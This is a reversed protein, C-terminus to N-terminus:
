TYPMHLPNSTCLASASPSSTHLPPKPVKTAEPPATQCTRWLGPVSGVNTSGYRAEKLPPHRGMVLIVQELEAAARVTPQYHNVGPAVM